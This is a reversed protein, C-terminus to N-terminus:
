PNPQTLRPLPNNPAISLNPPQSYGHHLATSSRQTTASAIPQAAVTATLMTATFVALHCTTYHLHLLLLTTLIVTNRSGADVQAIREVKGANPAPTCDARDVAIPCNLFKQLATETAPGPADARRLHLTLTICSRSWLRLLSLGAIILLPLSAVIDPRQPQIHNQM